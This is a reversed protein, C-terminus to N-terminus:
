SLKLSLVLVSVTSLYFRVHPSCSFGQPNRKEALIDIAAGPFAEKIARIAPLLLGHYNYIV